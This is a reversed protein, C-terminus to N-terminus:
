QSSFETKIQQECNLRPIGGSSPRSLHESVAGANQHGSWIRTSLFECDGSGVGIFVARLISISGRPDHAQGQLACTSVQLVAKGRLLKARWKGGPETSQEERRISTAGLKEGVVM